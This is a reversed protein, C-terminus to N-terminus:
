RDIFGEELHGTHNHSKKLNIREYDLFNLPFTRLQM